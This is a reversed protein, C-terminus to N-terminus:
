ACRRAPSNLIKRSRRAKRIAEREPWIASIPLGLAAAIIAEGKPYSKILAARLTDASYGHSLSLQRLTQGAKHLAAIVDAPHCDGSAKPASM